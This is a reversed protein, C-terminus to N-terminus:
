LQTYDPMVLNLPMHKSKDNIGRNYEGILEKWVTTTEVDNIQITTNLIKILMKKETTNLPWHQNSHMEYSPNMFHIRAIKTAKKYNENNYVKFYAQYGYNRNDSPFVGITMKPSKFVAGELLVEETITIRREIDHETIIRNGFLM